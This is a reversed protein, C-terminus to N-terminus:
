RTAVKAVEKLTFGSDNEFAEKGGERLGIIMWVLNRSNQAQSFERLDGIVHTRQIMGRHLIVWYLVEYLKAKSLNTKLEWYEFPM